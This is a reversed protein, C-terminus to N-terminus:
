QTFTFRMRRRMFMLVITSGTRDNMSVTRDDVNSSSYSRQHEQESDARNTHSVRM